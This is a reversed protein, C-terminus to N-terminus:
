MRSKYLFLDCFIFILLWILFTWAIFAMTQMTQSFFPCLLVGRDVEYINLMCFTLWNTFIQICLLYQPVTIQTPVAKLSLFPWQFAHWSDAHIENRFMCSKHFFPDCFLLILLWIMITWLHIIHNAYNTIFYKYLLFNRGLM